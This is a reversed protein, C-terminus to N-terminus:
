ATRGWGLVRRMLIRRAPPHNLLSVILERHRNFQATKRVLPMIGDTRALEFLGDIERDTLRNAIRRLKMQASFEEGLVARWREEYASLSAASLDGQSFAECLTEAALSASLISYYIGGGTTAKVLGAADGIALVRPAYTRAIPGLPLMKIRPSVGGNLCAPSGTKWRPGIRKLFQDFYDRADRECMLGIRAFARHGRNVPVAWAFGKPAVNNGFHVEVNGPDAAPVEIQASQLHMVPTGLGLRKQLAYNAGCALVCARAAVRREGSTTLWVGDDTVRVSTIREGVQVTAGAREARDALAGDFVKRDIVIAETQPTSHEISDGSPGFFQVTTLSNLFATRPLDFEDFAEVALVGTCHVPDGASAHEEFVTVRFGSRSLLYAAYLGGPGGGVIAIDYTVSSNDPGGRGRKM